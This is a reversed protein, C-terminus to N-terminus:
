LRPAIPRFHCCTSGPNQGSDGLLQAFPKQTGLAAGVLALDRWEVKRLFSAFLAAKDPPPRDCPSLPPAGAVLPNMAKAFASSRARVGCIRM